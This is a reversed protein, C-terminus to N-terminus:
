ARQGTPKKLRSRRMTLKCELEYVQKLITPFTRVDFRNAAIEVFKAKACMQFDEDHLYVAFKFAALASCYNAMDPKFFFNM